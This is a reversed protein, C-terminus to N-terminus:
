YFICEIINKCKRQCTLSKLSVIDRMLPCFSHKNQLNEHFHTTKYNFGFVFCTKLKFDVKMLFGITTMFIFFVKSLPPMMSELNWFHKTRYPISLRVAKAKGNM